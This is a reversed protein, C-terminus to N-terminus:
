EKGEEKVEEKKEEVRKVKEVKKEKVEVKEAKEVKEEKAEAEKKAKQEEIEKAATFWKEHGSAAAKGVVETILSISRIADDNGPVVYDVEGPDCNTDVIAVTPIKLRKAEQTAIKENKPDVIFLADPRKKLNRIGGLNIALKDRERTLLLAEKKTIKAFDGEAEMREIEELRRIRSAITEFNTLTGGLWRTNVYPMNSAEAAAKIADQAQRKTGVFLIVGGKQTVNEVFNYAEEILGLTQQLDIIYIDNRETYIYPKMKPDWRRKQHGFHVGAELLSKMTVVSM